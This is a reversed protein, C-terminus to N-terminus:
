AIGANRMLAEARPVDAPTDVGVGAHRVRLVKIRGGLHLARLQELKEAQELLCPPAAVFRRLFRERYAYVGIHRWHLPEAARFGADRVFPIPLRSFYLAWGAGDCVVKVVAPNGLDEEAELPSAATAMDCSDDDGVASALQDILAPDILPEDGQINVVVSAGGATVAEAIRDTGSAHDPRTMVARAGARTAADAIRSDDTAVLVEDLRAAQRAREVVWQIMPKGCLPVLSKGPLRTSAWRAPIVGVVKM